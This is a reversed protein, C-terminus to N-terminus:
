LGQEASVDDRNPGRWQPWDDSRCLGAGFLVAVLSSVMIKSRNM